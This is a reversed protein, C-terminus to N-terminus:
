AMHTPTIFTDSCRLNSGFCSDKQLSFLIHVVSDFADVIQLDPGAEPCDDLPFDHGMGGCTALAM